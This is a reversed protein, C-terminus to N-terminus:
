PIIIRFISNYLCIQDYNLNKQFSFLLVSNIKLSYSLSIFSSYNFSLFCIFSHIFFFLTSNQYYTKNGKNM